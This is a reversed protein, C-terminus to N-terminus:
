KAKDTKTGDFPNSSYKQDIKNFSQVLKTRVEAAYPNGKQITALLESSHTSSLNVLSLLLDYSPLSIPWEGVGFDTLAETVFYTLSHMQAMMNDHSDADMQFAVLGLRDFLKQADAHLMFSGVDRIVIVKQGEIKGQATAPGFLPHISLVDQNPLYKAILEHPKLKVSCVDVIVTDPTIKKVLRPLVEHYASLPIALLIYECESVRNFQSDHDGVDYTELKFLGDLHKATFKGFSGQGIIGLTRM